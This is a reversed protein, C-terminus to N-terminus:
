WSHVIRPKPLIFHETMAAFTAWSMTRGKQSRRRLLRIWISRVECRFTELARINHPRGYYAYHGQLVRSLWRYQMALPVHMMRWAESRLAKLKKVLRERQTKCKMM